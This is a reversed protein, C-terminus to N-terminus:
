AGASLIEQHHEQLRDKTTQLYMAATDGSILGKEFARAVLVAFNGRRSIPTERLPFWDVTLNEAAIWEDSPSPLEQLRVNSLDRKAANWLHYRAATASIGYEEMVKALLEQDSKTAKSLKRLAERPALFTIAFANTRIEVPDKSKQNEAQTAPNDEIGDYRDVRLRNLRDAPDWLLHGLEHAVTMRRVWVNSNQGLVNM